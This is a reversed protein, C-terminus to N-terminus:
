LLTFIKSILVKAPMHWCKRGFYLVQQPKWEINELSSSNLM